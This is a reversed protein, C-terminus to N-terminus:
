PEDVRRISEERRLCWFTIAGLFAIDAMSWIMTTDALAFSLFGAAPALVLWATMTAFVTQNDRYRDLIDFDSRQYAFSTVASGVCAVAGAPISGTISALAVPVVHFVPFVGGFESLINGVSMARDFSGFRLSTLEGTTNAYVIMATLTVVLAVSLAALLDAPFEDSTLGFGLLFAIAGLIVSAFGVAVASENARATLVASEDVRCLCWAPGHPLDIVDTVVMGLAMAASLAEPNLAPVHITTDPLARCPQEVRHLILRHAGPGFADPLFVEARFGESLALRLM